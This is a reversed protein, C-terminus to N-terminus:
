FVDNIFKYLVYQVKSLPEEIVLHFGFQFLFWAMAIALLKFLFISSKIKFVIIDLTLFIYFNPLLVQNEVLNQNVYILYKCFLMLAISQGLISRFISACIPFILCKGNM